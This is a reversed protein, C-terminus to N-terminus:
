FEHLVPTQDLFPLPFYIDNLVLGEEKNWTFLNLLSSANLVVFFFVFACELVAKLTFM